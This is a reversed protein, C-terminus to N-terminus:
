AAAQFASHRGRAGCRAALLLRVRQTLARRPAATRRVVMEMAWGRNCCAHCAGRQIEACILRAASVIETATPPEFGKGRCKAAFTSRTTEADLPEELNDLIYVVDYLDRPRTREFLARTKEALLEEFAYTRVRADAPMSDSYPHLVPRSVTPVVVQEHQTIDFRIRPWGPMGLPGQYGIRGEFTPRDLTDHKAKVIIESPNFRLGSLEQTRVCTGGKLIWVDRIGADQSLAALVWGLVYDKEVVEPRLNWEGALKIIEIKAIVARVLTIRAPM